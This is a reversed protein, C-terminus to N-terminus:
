LFVQGGQGPGNAGVWENGTPNALHSSGPDTAQNWLVSPSLSTADKIKKNVEKKQFKSFYNISKYLIFFYVKYFLISYLNLARSEPHRPEGGPKPM